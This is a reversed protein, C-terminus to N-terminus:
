SRRTQYINVMKVYILIETLRIRDKGRFMIKRNLRRQKNESESVDSHDKNTLIKTAYQYICVM